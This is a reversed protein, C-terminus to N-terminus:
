QRSRAEGRSAEKSATCLSGKHTQITGGYREVLAGVYAHGVGCGMSVLEGEQEIHELRFFSPFFPELWVIKESGTGPRKHRLVCGCYWCTLGLAVLSFIDSALTVYCAQKGAFQSGCNLQTVRM